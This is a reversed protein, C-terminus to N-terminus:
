CSCSSPWESRQFLCRPTMRPLPTQAATNSNLGQALLNSLHSVPTAPMKLLTARELATTPPSHPQPSLVTLSLFLTAKFIPVQTCLTAGFASVPLFHPREQLRRFSGASIFQSQKSVFGQAQRHPATPTPSPHSVHSCSGM